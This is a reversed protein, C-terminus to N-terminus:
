IQIKVFSMEIAITCVAHPWFLFLQDRSTAAFLSAVNGCCLEFQFQAIWKPCILCITFPLCRAFFRSQLWRLSVGGFLWAERERERERETKRGVANNCCLSKIKAGFHYDADLLTFCECCEACSRLESRQPLSSPALPEWVSGWESVSVPVSISVSVEWNSNEGREKTPRAVTCGGSWLQNSDVISNNTRSLNLGTKSWSSNGIQQDSSRHNHRTYCCIIHTAVQLYNLFISVNHQTFAYSLSLSLSYSIWTSKRLTHRGSSQAIVLLGL